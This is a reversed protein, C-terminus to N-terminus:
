QPVAGGENEWSELREHPLPGAGEGQRNSWRRIAWSAAILAMTAVAAISIGLIRNM